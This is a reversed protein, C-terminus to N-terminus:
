IYTGSVGPSFIGHGVEEGNEGRAPKLGEMNVIVDYREGLVDRLFGDSGLAKIETQAQMFDRMWRSKRDAYDYIRKTVTFPKGSTWPGEHSGWTYDEFYDPLRRIRSALHQREEEGIDFHMQTESSIMFADLKECSACQQCGIKFRIMSASPKLKIEQWLYRELRNIVFNQYHRTTRPIDKARMTELISRIGSITQYSSLYRSPWTKDTAATMELISKIKEPMHMGLLLDHLRVLTDQDIHHTSIIPFLENIAAAIDHEDLSGHAHSKSDKFLGCLVQVTMGTDRACKLLLPMMRYLNM